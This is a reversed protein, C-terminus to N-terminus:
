PTRCLAIRIARPATIRSSRRIPFANSPPPRLHAKSRGAGRLLPEIAINMTSMEKLLERVRNDFLNRHIEGVNLGHMRLLHRITGQVQLFAAVIQRRAQLTTRILQAEVSKVHVPRYHGIRMMEAIGRADSRNAKV